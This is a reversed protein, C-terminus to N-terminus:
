VVIASDIPFGLVLDSLAIVGYHQTLSNVEESPPIESDWCMAGVPLFGFRFLRM